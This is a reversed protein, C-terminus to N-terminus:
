LETRKNFIFAVYILINVYLFLYNFVFFTASNTALSMIAVLSVVLIPKINLNSKSIMYSLNLSYIFFLITGILGLRLLIELFGNHTDFTHGEIEFKSGGFGLGFYPENYFRNLASEWIVDRGNYELYLFRTDYHGLLNLVDFLLWVAFDIAYVSILTSTCVLITTFVFNIKPFKLVILYSSLCLLWALLTSRSEVITIIFLSILWILIIFKKKNIFGLLIFPILLISIHGTTNPNM